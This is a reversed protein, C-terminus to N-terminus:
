QLAETLAWVEAYAWGIAAGDRRCLCYKADIADCASYTDDMLSVDDCAVDSLWRDGDKTIVHYPHRQGIHRVVTGICDTM